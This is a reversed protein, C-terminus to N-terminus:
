IGTVALRGGARRPPALVRFPGTPPRPSVPATIVGVAADGVLFLSVVTAADVERVLTSARAQPGVRSAMAAQM